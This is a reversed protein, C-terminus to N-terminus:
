APVFQKRSADARAARLGAVLGLVGGYSLHGIFFLVANLEQIAPDVAPVVLWWMIAFVAAGYIMGLILLGGVSRTVYYAFAVFILGFIIANMLHGIMGVILPALDFTPNRSSQLSRILTAGIWQPPAWFGSHTSLAGWFSGGGTASRIGEVVMEWLAYVMGGLLGGVAGVRWTNREPQTMATPGSTTGPAVAGHQQPVAAGKGAADKETDESHSTMMETTDKM